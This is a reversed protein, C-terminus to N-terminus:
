AVRRVWFKHGPFRTDCGVCRFISRWVKPKSLTTPAQHSCHPCVLMMTGGLSRDFVLRTKPAAGSVFATEVETKPPGGSIVATIVAVAEIAALDFWEGELAYAALRRHVEFETRRAMEFSASVPFSAFVRLKFPSATQLSGLRRGVNTSIGIKIFKGVSGIVYVSYMAM